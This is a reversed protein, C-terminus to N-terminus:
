PPSLDGRDGAGRLGVADHQWFIESYVLTGSMWLEYASLRIAQFAPDPIRLSPKRFGQPGGAAFGLRSYYAPDGEVFVVPVAREAMVQLGRQILRSGIGRGHREPLVALPSLVQVDVLRRPADLWSHTFMVHGVVRGAEEAVLSVGDDATVKVRLADVLEAVKGDDDFAARHLARVAPQDQLQERRLDVLQFYRTAGSAWFM